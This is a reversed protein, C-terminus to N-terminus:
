ATRLVSNQERFLPGADVVMIAEKNELKQNLGAMPCACHSMLHLFPVSIQRLIGEADERLTLM